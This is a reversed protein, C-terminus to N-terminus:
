FISLGELITGFLSVCGRPWSWLWVEEYDWPWFSRAGQSIACLSCAAGGWPVWAFDHRIAFLRGSFGASRQLIYWWHCGQQSSLSKTPRGNLCAHFMGFYIRCSRALTAWTRRLHTQRLTTSFSHRLFANWSIVWFYYSQSYRPKYREVMHFFFNGEVKDDSAEDLNYPEWDEDTRSRNPWFTDLLEIVYMISSIISSLAHPFVTPLIFM